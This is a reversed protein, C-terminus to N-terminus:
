NPCGLHPQFCPSSASFSTNVWVQTVPKSKAHFDAFLFNSMDSHRQLPASLFSGGTISSPTGITVQSMDAIGKWDSIEERPAGTSSVPWDAPAVNTLASANSDSMFLTGSPVVLSAAHLARPTTTSTYALIGANTLAKMQSARGFYTNYGYSVPYARGRFGAKLPEDPCRFIAQSKLYPEIIDPWISPTSTVSGDYATMPYYDDNDQVYQAFAIGIQKLNSECTSQRAKERVRNFVPFLIAALLFIIALVVLLEILTFAPFTQLSNARGIPRLHTTSM